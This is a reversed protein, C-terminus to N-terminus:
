LDKGYLANLSKYLRDAYMPLWELHNDKLYQTEKRTKRSTLIELLEFNPDGNNMVMERFKAKFALENDGCGCMSICKDIAMITKTKAFSMSPQADPEEVITLKTAVGIENFFGQIASLIEENPVMNPVPIILVKM